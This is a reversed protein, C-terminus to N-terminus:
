MDYKKNFWIMNKLKEVLRKTKAHSLFGFYSQVSQEFTEESIDGEGLEDIQKKIKRLIRRKTKTKPLIYHLLGVYGLFEVGQAYKRISVKQPHLMLGLRVRLFNRIVPIYCELIEKESDLIVFDDNYRIYYKIRLERKIFQDLENLYINAFLQSSVNGLPLGSGPATEFSKIISEALWLINSDKITKDIISLLIDHQISDFYKKIDCKLVFCNKTYNKSAKGAFYQLRKVAGHTGRGKRSAYSDFIFRPEFIPELINVIAQHIIRDRVEAKHIHRKKPDYVYFSRYPGHKYQKDSLFSQINFLNANLNKAFEAVDKRKKKGKIFKSWARKLNVICFLKHCKIM